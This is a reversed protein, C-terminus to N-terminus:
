FFRIRFRLGEVFDAVDEGFVGDLDVVGGTHFFEECLVHIHDYGGPCKLLQPSDLCRLFLPQRLIRDAFAQIRHKHASGSMQGDMDSKMRWTESMQRLSVFVRSVSGEANQNQPLWKKRM